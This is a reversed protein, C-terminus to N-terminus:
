GHSISHHSLKRTSCGCVLAAVGRKRLVHMRDRVVCGEYKVNFYQDFALSMTLNSPAVGIDIADKSITILEM